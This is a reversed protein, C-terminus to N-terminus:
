GIQQMIKAYAEKPDSADMIFSGVNLVEVGSEVLEAANHDNVGGDWAIEAEPHLSSVQKVKDILGLDAKGGHYGLHGSFILIQDFSHMIQEAWDVPTDQLLCLGAEIGYKHLNAAMVMHHVEAENQIIVMHPKLTVLREIYEMPNKAMLHIDIKLNGPWNVKDLGISAKDTFIGDMIDIHIRRAFGKVRDLQATYQEEDYATVTPCVVAM